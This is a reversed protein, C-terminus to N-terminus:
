NKPWLNHQVLENDFHKIDMSWNIKLIYPLCWQAMFYLDNHGVNIKFDFTTNCKSM